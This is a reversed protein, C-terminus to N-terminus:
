PDFLSDIDEPERFRLILVDELAPPPPKLFYQGGGGMTAGRAAWGPPREDYPLVERVGPWAKEPDLLNKVVSAGLVLVVVGVITFLLCSGGCGWWVWTPGRRKKKPAEEPDQWDTEAM